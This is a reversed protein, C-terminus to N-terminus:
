KELRALLSRSAYGDQPLHQDKQYARIATQTRDGILGDITGPDYGKDALRQQLQKIDAANNLAPDDTPWAQVLKGKGVYSDALLAVALAYATSPNYRRIARYGDLVLLKPGRYGAPLLISAQLSAIQPPLPESAGVAGLWQWEAVSKKVSMDALAYDFTEPVKIELGWIGGRQWGAEKLYNAASALADASSNWVDRKQDGDGDVAYALYTTPIFQTQGMAGAWSGVLQERPIQDKQLIQLSALLQNEAYTKRRGDNALTALSRIVYRKGIETGYQSEIAWIAALVRADVGYDRELRQFMAYNSVLLSQGQQIRETTIRKDLYDWIYTTFEPQRRDLEVVEPDPTVQKFASDFKSSSIGADVAKQRFGQLWADFTADTCPLGAETASTSSAVPESASQTLNQGHALMHGTGLSLATFIAISQISPVKSM